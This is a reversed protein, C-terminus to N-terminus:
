SVIIVGAHADVETETGFQVIHHVGAKVPATSCIFILIYLEKTQNTRTAFIDMAILQPLIVVMNRCRDSSIEGIFLM